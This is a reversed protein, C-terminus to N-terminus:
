LSIPTRVALTVDPTDRTVGVGLSVNLSYRPNFRYSAGVLLTGLVTRVSGPPHIGNQRTRGVISQDYGLSISAKENLALGVGVNFGVIDGADVEGIFEREGNRVRRWVDDRKQNHLYSFNGFFVAPDSAYLWTLGAQLANFGSGTPLELPLGTGTTNGICRTVCDTEVEFPDRGTRTKYRLWGVYFPRDAAGRNLQYRAALEIDGIGSGSAQFVRDQATGTFIERSVTDTGVYSYPLRAELELRRGLGYRASLAATATTTKVQRVDVLGILIAPIVTYGVLAVRDNASYSFQVSPELVFTGAPTLVSPQDFIQAVDPPRGDTDPAQGVPEAAAADREPAQAQVQAIRDPVPQLWTDGSAGALGAPDEARADVSEIGRGRLADIASADMAQLRAIRADREALEEELADLRRAQTSLARELADIRAADADQAHATASCALALAGGLMALPVTRAPALRKTPPKM